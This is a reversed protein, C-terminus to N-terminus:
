AAAARPRPRLALRPHLDVTTFARKTARVRGFMSDPGAIHVTDVGQRQLSAVVEPWRVPRVIGDLLLKRVEAATTLVAGDQDAVIPLAPDAFVVDRMIEREVRERLPAFAASHMPPRMTYLPLGGASRLRQQLWELRAERLSVMYFDEDVYCSIEYPEGLEELERLVEALLRPPTRLFSHTVVDSHHQAFYDHECRALDATLRVVEAFSLSGSYATAAKAGFSPGTCVAPTVGLEAEAWQAMGLCTVLFAVQAAESYDGDTERLRDFVSYGLVDDATTLLARAHKNVLLFKAVTAFPTPGMGPFVMASLGTTRTTEM